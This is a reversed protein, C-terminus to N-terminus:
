EESSETSLTSSYRVSKKHGGIMRHTGEVGYSSGGANSVIIVMRAEESTRLRGAQLRRLKIVGCKEPPDRSQSYVSGSFFDFPMRFAVALPVEEAKVTFAQGLSRNMGTGKVEGLTM